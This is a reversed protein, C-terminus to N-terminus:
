ELELKLEFYKHYIDQHNTTWDYDLRLATCYGNTGVSPIWPYKVGNIEKNRWKHFIELLVIKSKGSCYILMDNHGFRFKEIEIIISETKNNDTLIYEQGNLTELLHFYHCANRIMMDFQNDSYHVRDRSDNITETIHEYQEINRIYM